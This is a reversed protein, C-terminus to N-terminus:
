CMSNRTDLTFRTRSRQEGTPRSARNTGSVSGNGFFGVLVACTELTVAVADEMRRRKATEGALGLDEDKGVIVLPCSECVGKLDCLYSCGDSTRKPEINREGLGYRKAVVAPMARSTMGALVGEIGEDRAAIVMGDPAGVDNKFGEIEADLCEVADTVM